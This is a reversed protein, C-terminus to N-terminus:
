LLAADNSYTIGNMHATLWSLLLDEVLMNQLWKLKKQTHRTLIKGVHYGTYGFVYITLSGVFRGSLVGTPFTLLM